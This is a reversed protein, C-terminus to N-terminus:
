LQHKECLGKAVVVDIIQWTLVKPLMHAGRVANALKWQRSDKNIYMKPSM